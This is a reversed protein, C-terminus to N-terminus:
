LGVATAQGGSGVRVSISKLQRSIEGPRGKGAECLGVTLLMFVILYTVVVSSGLFM